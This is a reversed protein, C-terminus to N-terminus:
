VAAPDSLRSDGAWRRGQVHRGSKAHDMGRSHRSLEAGSTRGPRDFLRCFFFSGADFPSEGYILLKRPDEAFGRMAVRYDDGMTPALGAAIKKMLPDFYDYSFWDDHHSFGALRGTNPHFLAGRGRDDGGSDLAPGLTGDPSIEHYEGENEGANLYLVVSQGDRGLGILDPTNLPEKVSYIEKFRHSKGPEGVNFYLKWTKREDSYESYAVPRGDPAVVWGETDNSGEHLLKGRPKTMSFSFLCLNYGLAMRYNSGTVRYEGDVKIRQVDGLVIGYFGGERSFFNVVEATDLHVSRAISFEHKWGAFEPLATTVSNILVVHENDGFFLGRIKTPGMNITKTKPDIITFHMLIKDDGKQTVLACRKGDPSLAIEDIAPPLAFAEIPPMPTAPVKPTEDARASLTALNLAAAAGGIRFLARRNLNPTM